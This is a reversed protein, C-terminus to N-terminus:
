HKFAKEKGESYDRFATRLGILVEASTELLAQFKPEEFRDIDQRSQTILDELMKQINKSHVKPDITTTNMGSKSCM